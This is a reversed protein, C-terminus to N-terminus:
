GKLKSKRAAYEIAARTRKKLNHTQSDVAKQMIRNRIGHKQHHKRMTAITADPQYLNKEVGFVRGDKTAWFAHQMAAMGGGLEKELKKARNFTASKRVRFVGGHHGAESREGLLDNLIAGEGMKKHVAWAPKGKKVIASETSNPPTLSMADRVVLKGVEKLVAGTKKRTATRFERIAKLFPKIDLEAKM